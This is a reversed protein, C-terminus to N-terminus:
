NGNINKDGWHYGAPHNCNICFESSTGDITERYGKGNYHFCIGRKYKAYATKIKHLHRPWVRGVYVGITLFLVAIFLKNMYFM